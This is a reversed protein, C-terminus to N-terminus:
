KTSAAIMPIVNAPQAPAVAFWKEAESKTALGKYRAHLISPSNGAEAATLNENGHLAFHFSCFGHRLGNRRAPIALSELLANFETHWTDLCQSWIPGSSAKYPSLWQALSDCITVLRRARTKSKAVSIEVHGPVRWVDEWTLRTAEQLRVGGLACLAISPVLHRFDQREAQEDEATTQKEAPQGNAPQRSARELISALELPSYFAIDEPEALERTMSIAENLRHNPRLYDSRVAWDLFMRVVNRRENRTKPSLGSHKAMYINLLDKTLDCVAHNPFTRGFERLWGAVGSFYKSSLQPRKGDKAITKSRRGEIFEEVAKNLDVRKIVAATCVFSGVAEAITHDKLREAAECFAGVAVTLSMKKGTSQRFMDLRQLATLADVTQKKTLAAAQNGEYIDKALKEAAKLAESYTRYSAMTRKGAVYAAVRYFPYSPRKGYITALSKKRFEVIKPFRVKADSIAPDQAPNTDSGELEQTVTQSDTAFTATRGPNSGPCYGGFPQTSGNCWRVLQSSDLPLRASICLCFPGTQLGANLRHLASGGLPPVGYGLAPVWVDTFFCPSLM